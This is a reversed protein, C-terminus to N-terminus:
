KFHGHRQPAAQGQGAPVARYMVFKRNIKLKFTVSCKLEEEV